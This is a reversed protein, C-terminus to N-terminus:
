GGFVPTQTKVLMGTIKELDYVVGGHSVCVCVYM